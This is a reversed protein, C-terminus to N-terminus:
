ANELRANLGGRLEGVLGKAERVLGGLKSVEIEGEGIQVLGCLEGTSTFCIVLQSQAASEELPTPDLHPTNNIKLPILVRDAPCSLSLSLSLSLSPSVSVFLPSSSFRPSFLCVLNLTVGVPLERWAELREGEEWGGEVLEFDGKNVERGAKGGKVLGSIGEM